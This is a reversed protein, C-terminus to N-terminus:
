LPRTRATELLYDATPIPGLYKEMEVIGFREWIPLKLINMMTNLQEVPSQDVAMRKVELCTPCAGLHKFFWAPDSVQIEGEAYPFVQKSIECM